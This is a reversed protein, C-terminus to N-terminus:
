WRAITRHDKPLARFRLLLTKINFDYM